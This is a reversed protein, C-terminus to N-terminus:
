LSLFLFLVPAFPFRSLVLCSLRLWCRSVQSVEGACIAVLAGGVKARLPEDVSVVALKKPLAGNLLEAEVGAPVGGGGISCCISRVVVGVIYM